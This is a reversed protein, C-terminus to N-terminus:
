LIFCIYKSIYKNSYIVVDTVLYKSYQTQSGIKSGTTYILFSLLSNALLMGLISHLRICIVVLIFICVPQGECDHDKLVIMSCSVTKDNCFNMGGGEKRGM